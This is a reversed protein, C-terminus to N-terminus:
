IGAMGRLLLQSNKVLAPRITQKKGASLCDFWDEYEPSYDVTEIGQRHLYYTLSSLRDLAFQGDGSYLAELLSSFLELQGSDVSLATNMIHKESILHQSAPARDTEMQSLQEDTVMMMGHLTRFIKGADASLPANHTNRSQGDHMHAHGKGLIFGGAFLLGGSLLTFLTQRPDVSQVPAGYLFPFLTCCLCIVGIILCVAGATRYLNQGSRKRRQVTDTLHNDADEDQLTCILPASMRATTLMSAAALRATESQAEENYMYLLRDIEREVEKQATEGDPAGQLRSMFRERDQLLYEELKM